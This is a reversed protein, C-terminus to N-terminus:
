GRIGKLRAAELKVQETLGGVALAAHIVSERGFALGLENANLCSVYTNEGEPPRLKAKQATSGDSAQLLVAAGGTVLAEKTKSFGCLAYGGKRALSIFEVTRQVLLKEVLQLLGDPIKASQKAARAFLNRAIAKSLADKDASVWIGRGPLREAVDPTVTGGPDLVFRVLGAKPQTEATAICRREPEEALKKRGGRTVPL